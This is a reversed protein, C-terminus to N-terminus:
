LKMLRRVISGDANLIRLFYVGGPLAAAEIECNASRIEDKWILQGEEDYVEFASGILGESATLQWSGTTPNPYVSVDEYKTLENLGTITLPSSTANCGNSDTVELTYSGAQNADYVPGTASDIPSGNLYWQYGVEGFSSLTNGNVVISVAPLPYANILVPSSQATCTHSDTVTVYYNGAEDVEICNDSGTLGTNWQYSSFGATACLRASDGICFTDKDATLVVVPVPYVSIVVQNSEATCNHTDTATVYYTGAQQVGICTDNGPQGMNWQYFSFGTTACLRASDGSCFADKDASVAVVPVPYVSIAVQNSEATCNHVDTVTVYYTGAQQVGICTDNGSAGTNWQYLVFGPTACLQGTDGSCFENKGATVTVAPVPDVSIAVQNSEATCNHADTATVYYTGSQQVGICTDNGFAGTNWQYLSFGGTACLRASDGSCFINKDATVSAVPAPNVVLIAVSSSDTTCGGNAEVRFYTLQTNSNSLFTDTAAGPIDSFSVGDSSSQWQLTGASGTDILQVNGGACVSDLAPIIAGAIGYAGQIVSVTVSETDLCAGWAVTVSYTTTSDPTAVPNPSTASDLGIAPSWLYVTGGSAHLAVSDGRCISTDAPTVQATFPNGTVVPTVIIIGNGGAPATYNVYQVAGAGGRACGSCLGADTSDGPAAGNGDMVTDGLSNGGAGGGAGCDCDPASGGAGGNTAGGGGGGGGGGDASIHGGAGGNVTANGGAAALKEGATSNFNGNQGGGGAAEPIANFGGGGGGGGGAAAILLTATTSDFVASSGGGAGGAGSCGDPGSNAGNGGTGYGYAGIGGGTGATCGTGGAGGGGVYIKIVDGPNVPLVSNAYAGGGGYGGQGGPNNSRSDAGGGGGGGGWAKVSISDVNCPVTYNQVVGTYNYVVQCSLFQYGALIALAATLYYKGM